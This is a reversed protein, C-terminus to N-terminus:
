AQPRTKWAWPRAGASTSSRGLYSYRSYKLPDVAENNPWGLPLGWATFWTVGRSGIGAGGRIRCALTCMPLRVDLKDEASPLRMLFGVNMLVLTV